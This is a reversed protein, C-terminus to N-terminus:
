WNLWQKIVERELDVVIIKVHNQSIMPFAMRNFVGSFAQLPIALYLPITIANRELLNRYILYQGIASYLDTTESEVDQFCKVEVVMVSQSNTHHAEIDIYVRHSRDIRILFQELSIDWGEKELAQVIQPHCSDFAPM